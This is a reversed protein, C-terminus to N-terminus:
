QPASKSSNNNKSQLTNNSNNGFYYDADVPAAVALALPSPVAVVAFPPIYAALEFAAAVAINAALAAFALLLVAVDTCMNFLM